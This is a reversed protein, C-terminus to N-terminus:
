LQSYLFTRHRGHQVYTYQPPSLNLFFYNIATHFFRIELQVNKEAAFFNAFMTYVMKSNRIKSNSGYKLHVFPHVKKFRIVCEITIPYFLRRHFDSIEMKENKLLYVLFSLLFSVNLIFNFFPTCSFQIEYKLHVFPHVKKFHCEITIPYFLRRHFDSIEMKENKLLYVLFSLLFSVNLIFNFFPTCSFQIEYKLHVFPHVKKFHCRSLSLTFYGGIFIQFKWKRM